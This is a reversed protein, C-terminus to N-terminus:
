GRILMSDAYAITGPGEISSFYKRTWLILPM